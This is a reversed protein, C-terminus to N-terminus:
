MLSFLNSGKSSATVQLAAEYATQVDFLHTYSQVADADTLVSLQRALETQLSQSLDQADISLTMDNGVQSRASIVQDVASAVSDITAAVADADGAELASVLSDLVAFVDTTGQLLDSGDYGTPADLQDSVPVTPQDASGAYTGDSEFAVSDYARGAFVYRGAVQANALDVVQDFIAQAQTAADVRQDDNYTESAMAVALEQAQALADSIGGLSLDAVALMGDSTAQNDAYTDLRAQQAKLSQIRGVDSPADSPRSVKAGSAAVEQAEALQAGIRSTVNALSTLRSNWTTRILSM